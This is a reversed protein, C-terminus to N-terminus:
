TRRFVYDYNYRRINSHINKYQSIHTPQDSWININSFTTELM